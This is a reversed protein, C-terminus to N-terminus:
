SHAKDAEVVSYPQPPLGTLTVSVALPTVRVAVLVKPSTETGRLRLLRRRLGPGGWPERM